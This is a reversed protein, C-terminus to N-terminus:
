EVCKTESIAELRRAEHAEEWPIGMDATTELSQDHKQMTTVFM